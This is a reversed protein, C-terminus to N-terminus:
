PTLVNLIRTGAGRDSVNRHMADFRDPGFEGTSRTVNNSFRGFTEMTEQTDVFRNIVLDTQWAEAFASQLVRGPRSTARLRDQSIWTTM